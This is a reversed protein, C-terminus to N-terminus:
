AVICFSQLFSQLSAGLETQLEEYKAVSIAKVSDRLIHISPVSDLFERLGSPPPILVDDEDVCNDERQVIFLLDTKVPLDSLLQVKINDFFHDTNAQIKLATRGTLRRAFAESVGKEPYTIGCTEYLSQRESVPFNKRGSVTFFVLSYRKGVFPEVEHACKSEVLRFRERM